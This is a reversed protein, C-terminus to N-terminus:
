RESFFVRMEGRGRNNWLRYPLLKIKVPDYVPKKTGYLEKTMGTCRYGDVIIDSDCDKIVGNDKLYLNYVSGNDAQEACYVVPGKMIAAKGSLNKINQNAYMKVVPM